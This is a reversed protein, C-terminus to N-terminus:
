IGTALLILAMLRESFSESASGPSRVIILLFVIDTAKVDASIAAPIAKNHKSGPHEVVTSLLGAAAV